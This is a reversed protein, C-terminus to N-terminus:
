RPSPRAVAVEVRGSRLRVPFVAVSVASDDLAHGTRLDFGQKYLPSAVKPVGDADGVIGRALVAVGTFPDINSIAFLEAFGSVRFIAIQEGDVLACVGRDVPVETLACVDLWTLTAMTMM